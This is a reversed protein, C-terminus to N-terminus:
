IIVLLIMLITQFFIDLHLEPSALICQSPGDPHDIWFVEYLFGRNLFYDSSAGARLMPVCGDEGCAVDDGVTVEFTLADIGAVTTTTPESVSATDPVTALWGDLDDAALSAEGVTADFLGTPRAFIMDHEGPGTNDPRAIVFFGPQVPRTGWEEGVTFTVSTGLEGMTYTGAGFSEFGVRFIRRIYNHVHFEHGM